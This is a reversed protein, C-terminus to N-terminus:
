FIQARTGTRGSVETHGWVVYKLKRMATETLLIHLHVLQWWPEPLEEQPRVVTSSSRTKGAETPVPYSNM